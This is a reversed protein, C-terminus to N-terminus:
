YKRIFIPNTALTQYDRSGVLIRYYCMSTSLRDEDVYWEDVMNRLRFTKVLDKNKFLYVTTPRSNKEISRIKIHIAVPPSSLLLTEGIFANRETRMDYASFDDLVIRNGTYDRTAYMRGARIAEFIGAKSREKAFIFTNTAAVQALDNTEEFDLEGIAWVPKTRIGSCYEDLVMDWLGGPRGISKMGEWFICFGTYNKTETIMHPYSDTEIKITQSLFPLKIPRVESHHVEPHAWFIMGNNDEVYNILEQFPGGGPDGHYQDYKLPLFPFETFLVYALILTLFLAKWSFRYRHRRKRVHAIDRRRYSRRIISFAAILFLIMYLAIMSFYMFNASVYKMIDGSPKKYGLGGNPISPLNKYADISNFGFVLLHTHWNRLTLNTYLPSGEWFYFPVAEVGPILIINTYVKNIQEIEQLYKEIGYKSISNEQISFKLFNQFPSIGYSIKMNDHDTIIAADLGYSNAIGALESITYSGGSVKSDFHIGTKLRYYDRSVQSYSNFFSTFTILLTIAWHKM